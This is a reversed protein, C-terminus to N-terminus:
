AHISGSIPQTRLPRLLPLVNIKWLTLNDRLEETILDHVALRDKTRVHDSLARLVSLLHLKIRLMEERVASDPITKRMYENTYKLFVVFKRTQDIIAIVSADSLELPAIGKLNEIDRSLESVTESLTIHILSTMEAHSICAEADMTKM